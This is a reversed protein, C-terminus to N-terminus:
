RTKTFSPEEYIEPFALKVDEGLVHDSIYEVTKYLESDGRLEFMLDINDGYVEYLSVYLDLNNDLPKKDTSAVKLYTRNGVTTKLSIYNKGVTYEKVYKETSIIVKGEVYGNKGYRSPIITGNLKNSDEELVSLANNNEVYVQAPADILLKHIDNQMMDCLRADTKNFLEPIIATVVNYNDVAVNKDSPNVYSNCKCNNAIYEVQLLLNEINRKSM